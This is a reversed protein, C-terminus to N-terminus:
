TAAEDSSTDQPTLESMTQQQIDSQPHRTILTSLEVEAGGYPEHGPGIWDERDSANRRADSAFRNWGQAM